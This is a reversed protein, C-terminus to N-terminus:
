DSAGATEPIEDSGRGGGDGRAWPRSRPRTALINVDRSVVSRASGTEDARAGLKEEDPTELEYKKRAYDHLPRGAAVVNCNIYLSMM